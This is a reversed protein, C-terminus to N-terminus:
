RPPGKMPDPTTPPRLVLVETEDRDAGRHLQARIEVVQSDDLMVPGDRHVRGAVRRTISMGDLLAKVLNDLDARVRNTQRFIAYVHLDGELPPRGRMAGRATVTVRQEYLSTAAPTYARGGVVRPREKPQPRGPVVFTVELTARQHETTTM